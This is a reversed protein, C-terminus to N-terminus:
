RDDRTVEEGRPTVTVGVEGSQDDDEDPVAAETDDEDEGDGEDDIGNLVLSRAPLAFGSTFAGSLAQWADEPEALTGAEEPETTSAPQASGIVPLLQRSSGAPQLALVIAGLLVTALWIIASLWQANGATYGLADGKVLIATSAAVLDRAAVAAYLGIALGPFIAVVLAVLTVIAGPLERASFRAPSKKADVDGLAAIQEAFAPATARLLALALLADGAWCLAGLPVNLGGAQLIGASTLQRGVFGAFLPMGILTAAGISWAALSAPQLPAGAARPGDADPEVDTTIVGGAVISAVMAGLGLVTTSLLM